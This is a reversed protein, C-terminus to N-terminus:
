FQQSIPLRESRLLTYLPPATCPLTEVVSTDLDCVVEALRRCCYSRHSFCREIKECPSSPTEGDTWRTLTCVRGPRILPVPILRTPPSACRSNFFPAPM